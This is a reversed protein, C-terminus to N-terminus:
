TPFAPDDTTLGLSETNPAECAASRCHWNTAWQVALRSGTQQM